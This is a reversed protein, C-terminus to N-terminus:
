AYVSRAEVNPREQVPLWSVSLSPMPLNGTPTACILPSLTDARRLM